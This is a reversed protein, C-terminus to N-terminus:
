IADRKLSSGGGPVIKRVLGNLPCLWGANDAVEKQTQKNREGVHWHDCEAEEQEAADEPGGGSPHPRRWEGSGHNQRQRRGAAIM